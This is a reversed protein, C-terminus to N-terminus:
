EAKKNAEVEAEAKKKEFDKTLKKLIQDTIDLKDSAYIFGEHAILDYSEDKAIENVVKMVAEGFVASAKGQVNQLGRNLAAEKQKFVMLKKQYDEKMKTVQGPSSMLKDKEIKKGLEELETALGDLEEKPEKLISEVRESILKAQPAEASLKKMNIVGVKLDAAHLGASLFLTLFILTLQKKM